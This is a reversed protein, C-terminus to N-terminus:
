RKAVCYAEKHVTFHGSQYDIYSHDKEHVAGPGQILVRRQEECTKQSAMDLAVQSTGESTMLILVLSYM